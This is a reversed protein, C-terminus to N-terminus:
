RSRGRRRAFYYIVPLLLFLGFPLLSLYNTKSVSLAFVASYSKNKTPHGATVIGLYDGPSTFTYAVTMSADPHVSPPQYFVTFKEIHDIAQIDSMQVYKGLKTVDEIIRFDIPVEKMSGHLYDLVFLTEGIDPLDQCFQKDGSSQLQYATFHAEYFGIKIICVDDRLVLGGGALVPISLTSAVLGLCLAYLWRRFAHPWHTRLQFM